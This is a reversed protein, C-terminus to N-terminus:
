KGYAVTIQLTTGTTKTQMCWQTIFIIIKLLVQEHCKMGSTNLYQLYATHHKSPL